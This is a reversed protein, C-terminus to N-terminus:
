IARWRSHSEEPLVEEFTLPRDTAMVNLTSFSNESDRKELTYKRNVTSYRLPTSTDSNKLIITWGGGIGKMSLYISDETPMLTAECWQHSEKMWENWRFLDYSRLPFIKQVHMDRSDYRLEETRSLKAQIVELHSGSRTIFWITNDAAIKLFIWGGPILACREGRELDYFHISNEDSENQDDGPTTYVLVRGKEILKPM